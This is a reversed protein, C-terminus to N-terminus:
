IESSWVLQYDLSRVPTSLILDHPWDTGLRISLFKFRLCPTAEILFINVTIVVHNAVLKLISSLGILNILFIVKADDWLRICICSLM